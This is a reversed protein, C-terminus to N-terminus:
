DFHGAAHALMTYVKGTESTLYTRTILGDRDDRSLETLLREFESTYRDVSDRFEPEGRYRRRIEEFTQQGQPTYLRRSFVNTEGRNYRDWLDVVAEHDVMRAIDLTIADLANGQVRPAPAPEETEDRSARALLDTLWGAGKEPTPAAAVPAPPKRLNPMPRRAPGTDDVRPPEPRYADAMRVTEVARQPESYRTADPARQPEARRGVPEAVDYARGSRAVIDTLENLAKIQEAVVRRMAAAQEATERPLEVAGRRLEQRTTELERNIDTSIGQIESASTRMRELATNFVQAVEQNAESFISRLESTMKDQQRSTSNRVEDYQESIVGAVSQTTESIFGGIDRARAEARRFADDVAVSFTRMLAEFEGTKATMAEITSNLAERRAGLVRDIDGQAAGIQTAVGALYQNSTELRGAIADASELTAVATDTIAHVQSNVTDLAQGFDQVRLSLATEVGALNEGAHSVIQQLFASTDRLKDLTAIIEGQLLQKTDTLSQISNRAAGDIQIRLGAAAKDIAASLEEQKLGLHQVIAAGRGEIANAVVEGVTAIETTVESGRAAIMDVLMPGQLEVLMQLENSRSVIIENLAEGRERMRETLQHMRTDINNSIETAKVGLTEAVSRGRREIEDSVVNLRGVVRDEFTAIRDDLTEAIESARGGLTQNIEYAKSSLTETLATSRNLLIAGIEAAKEDLAHTVQRGGEGLVQAVELARQALTENLAKARMDLGTDIKGILGDLSAAIAQSKNTAREEFERTRLELLGATSAAHSELRETLAMGHVTFVNEVTSFRDVIDLTFHEAQQSIREALAGGQNTFVDEVRNFRSAIDDTFRDTQEALREALAGGHVTIAAEAEQLRSAVEGTFRDAHEAIQGALVESHNIITMEFTVLREAMEGSIRDGNGVVSYEFQALREALADTVRGGQAVVTSEFALLRDSLHESVRDSHVSIASIADEASAAFRNTLDTVERELHDTLQVHHTQLQTALEHGSTHFLDYVTNARESILSSIREGTTNFREELEGGSVTITHEIKDGTEAIREAFDLGRASITDAIRLGTADIRAAVDDGRDTLESVLAEGTSKLRSDIEDIRTGLQGTIAETAATLRQTVNDGTSALRAVIDGGHETIRGVLDDGTRTLTASIDEGKSDLLASVRSGATGVREAILTSAEELDRSLAEHAGSIAQRVRDANIVIAERESSLEDILSRIRRENETYSRELTSVEARVVTELESARALAREIGDGMSSVERRIAQSLSVVQETAITEPEALRMAVETLAQATLRVEQARRMMLASIFFFVIPGLTSMALVAIQQPALSGLTTAYFGILGVWIASGIAPLAMLKPDPRVQMAQLIQGVSRRDDNAASPATTNKPEVSKAEVAKAEAARAEAAKGEAEDRQRRSTRVSLTGDPMAPQAKPAEAKPAAPEVVQALNLAEEIASLAAATPDQAKPQTAM